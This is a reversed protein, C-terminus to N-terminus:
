DAKYTKNRYQTPTLGALERFVRNFTPKSNFGSDLAIELINSQTKRLLAKAHDVRMTNILRNFNSDLGLNIARSMYTENSSMRRALDRLSLTPSLYWKEVEIRTKLKQGKAVWDHEDTKENASSKSRRDYIKPFPRSTRSLAELGLWAMIATMILQIPFGAEYSIGGHLFEAIQFSIFIAGGIWLTRILRTLWVPDYDIKASQTHSLFKEYTKINRGAAYLGFLVLGVAFVTELPLIYPDHVNRTFAWKNKYDGLTLFATTYYITQVAGPFLLVWRWKLPKDHMLTWAHLYLLPGLYLETEFPFFTLGPWINYFESFGIIQPIQILVVAILLGGLFVNARREVRRSLLMLATIVMPFCLAFMLASRWNISIDALSGM